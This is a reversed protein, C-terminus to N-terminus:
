NNLVFKERYEDNAKKFDEHQGIDAWYERIPFAGVSENEDILENILDTMDYFENHPIRDLLEPELIYVGANVFVSHSPKEVLNHVEQNDIKVVGYPIQYNYERSGITMLYGDENHYKIMSDFNLRTLLDGNMVFFPKDIKKSILSLAGATGLRKEESVYDINVDLKSGDGFYRKIQMEKYNTCLIFNVFGYSKFQEIITELIPKDGIELLPKPTKDTLPRLRTGLGGVMLVVTNEKKNEKIIENLLALDKVRGEDDLLPIQHFAKQKFKALIEEKPTNFHLYYFDKNMIETVSKELDLGKIIGRRIDGDTITGLLKKDEDVVLVIQKATQDIVKLAERINTDPSILLKNINENM